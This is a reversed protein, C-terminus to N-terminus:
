FGAAWVCLSFCLSDDLERSCVQFSRLVLCCLLVTCCKILSNSVLWSGLNVSQQQRYRFVSAKTEDYPPFEQYRVEPSTYQVAGCSKDRRNITSAGHNDVSLPPYSKHVYHTTGNPVTLSSPNLIPAVADVGDGLSTTNVIYGSDSTFSTGPKFLGQSLGLTRLLASFGDATVLM